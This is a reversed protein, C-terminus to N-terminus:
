NVTPPVSGRCVATCSCFRPLIAGSITNQASGKNEGGGIGLLSATDEQHDSHLMARARGGGGSGDGSVRVVASGDDTAPPKTSQQQRRKAFVLFMKLAEPVVMVYGSVESTLQPEWCVEDFVAPESKLLNVMAALRGDVDHVELVIQHIKPWDEDDIGHLLALEDGEVDVKLLDVVSIDLQHRALSLPVVQCLFSKGRERKHGDECSDEAAPVEEGGPTKENCTTADLKARSNNKDVRAETAADRQAKVAPYRITSHRAAPACAPIELTQRWSAADVDASLARRQKEREQLHRTSEGPNDEFFHFQEEAQEAGLAVRLSVPKPCTGAKVSDSSANSLNRVLVDYIAPIPEFAYVQVGRAERLCQLSFLGINAGADIVIAGEEVVLGHQLYSRRVFVEEYLFEAEDQHLCEFMMGKPDEILKLSQAAM